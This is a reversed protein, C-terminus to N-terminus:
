IWLLFISVINIYDSTAKSDKVTVRLSIQGTKRVNISHVNFMFHSSSILCVRPFVTFIFAREIFQQMDYRIGDRFM